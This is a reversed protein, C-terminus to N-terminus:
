FRYEATFVVATGPAPEDFATDYDADFLNEATLALLWHRKMPEWSVQAGVTFYDDLEVLNAADAWRPGVYTGVIGARIQLPHVWALGVDVEHNALGALENGDVVGGSTDETWTHRYRAFAGFRELFWTNVGVGLEDARQDGDIAQHEYQLVTFLGPLWEADWRAQVDDLTQDNLLLLKDSPALGLVAIPALTGNLPTPIGFERLYGARLWHGRLPEWAVAIRPDVETQDSTDDDFYRVFAGGEVWWSPSRVADRWQAQVYAQAGTLPSKDKLSAPRPELQLLNTVQSTRNDILFLPDLSVIAPSLARTARVAQEQPSWEAGYTLSLQKGVDFLHRIQLDLAHQEIETVGIPNTDIHGSLSIPSACLAPTAVCLGRTTASDTLVAPFGLVASVDFLGNDTLERTADLGLQRILSYRLPDLGQGFPIANSQRSLNNGLAVRAMVRNDFDFRHHWGISGSYAQVENEDDPDPDSAGGAAGATSHQASLLLLLSDRNSNFTTGVSALVSENRQESNTRFGDNYDRSATINYAVPNPLRAFGQLTGSASDTHANDEAGASGGISLYSRPMRVFDFYRNSAAIGLPDLILGQGAEAKQARVSPYLFSLFLHSNPDYPSFSQQAYYEGWDDLDLNSYASGVNSVGSRTSVISEVELSGLQRIKEAGERAYRIAKGAEAQDQAMVAGVVLPLPDDPDVRRAQELSAEADAFQGDHYQAFSLISYIQPEAPNAVIAAQSRTTASAPDGDLLTILSQVALATSYGPKIALAKDLLARAEEIRDVQMLWMAYNTLVLPTDPAAENAKLYAKEADQDRGLDDLLLAYNNWLEAQNTHALAAEYAALARDEDPEINHYYEGQMGLAIPQLPDIALAREFDRRMAAEDGRLLAFASSIAPFRADSPFRREGDAALALARDQDGAFFALVPRYLHADVQEPYRAALEDLQREMGAYDGDEFSLGAIGLGALLQDRPAASGRAAELLPRAGERDGRRARLMGDVLQLGPSSGFRGAQAVSQAAADLQGRDYQARALRLWAAADRSSADTSQLSQETAIVDGVTTAESLVVMEYWRPEIELAMLPRDKLDVIVRKTPVQGRRVTGQEGGAVEIAGLENTLSVEGTVVTVVTEGDPKVAVHWDTGRIGITATPTTMEIINSGAKPLRGSVARVLSKARSWASGALLRFRSVSPEGRQRVVEVEFTSNRQVRIQTEDRFLIAVGGFDGTRVVDGPSLPQRPRLREFGTSGVLRVYEDGKTSVVEGVRETAAQAVAAWGLSAACILVGWRVKM